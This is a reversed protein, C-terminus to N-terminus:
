HLVAPVPSVTVNGGDIEVSCLAFGGAFLAMKTERAGCPTELWTRQHASVRPLAGAADPGLLGFVASGGPKMDLGLSRCLEVAADDAQLVVFAIMRPDQRRVRVLNEAQTSLAQRAAAIAQESSLLVRGEYRETLSRGIM